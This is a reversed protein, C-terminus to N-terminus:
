GPPVSTIVFIQPGPDSFSIHHCFCFDANHDSATFIAPCGRSAPFPLFCFCASEGLAELFFAFKGVSDKLRSGELSKVKLVIFYGIQKLDSFKCLHTLATLPFSHTAEKRIYTNDM